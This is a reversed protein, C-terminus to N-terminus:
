PARQFSGPAKAAGEENFNNLTRGGFPNTWSNPESFMKEAYKQLDPLRTLDLKIKKSGERVEVIFGASYDKLKGLNKRMDPTIGQHLLNSQAMTAFVVQMQKLADARTEGHWGINNGRGERFFTYLSSIWKDGVNSDINAESEKNVVAVLSQVTEVLNRKNAPVYRRLQGIMQTYGKPSQQRAETTPQTIWNRYMLNVTEPDLTKGAATAADKQSIFEAHGARELSSVKVEYPVYDIMGAPALEQKKDSLMQVMKHMDFNSAEGSVRVADLLGKYNKPNDKIDKIIEAMTIAEGGKSMREALAYQAAVTLVSAERRKAEDADAKSQRTDQKQRAGDTTLSDLATQYTAILSNTAPQMNTAISFLKTAGQENQDAIRVAKAADSQALTNAYDDLTDKLKDKTLNLQDEYAARQDKLESYNAADGFGFTDQLFRMIPNTNKEINYIDEGTKILSNHLTELDNYVPNLMERRTNIDLNVYDQKAKVSDVIAAGSNQGTAATNFMQNGALTSAADILQNPSLGSVSPFAGPFFQNFVQSLDFSNFVPTGASAAPAAAAATKVPNATAEKPQAASAVAAPDSSDQAHAANIAESILRDLSLPDNTAM